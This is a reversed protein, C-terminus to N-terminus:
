QKGSTRQRSERKRAYMRVDAEAMLADLGPLAPPPGDKPPRPDWLSFGVSAALQFKRGGQDNLARANALVRREIFPVEDPGAQAVLAAFEDGGLRALVDGERLSKKLVAAMDRIAADGTEHGQEDNIKKLGDLDAYLVAMPTQERRAQALRQEALVLFGRRNLLGTLEDVQSLARMREAQAELLEAAKKQESVDRLVSVGAVVRGTKDMIPRATVSIWLGAPRHPARVFLLAEDAPQGRTALTIPGEGPALATKQDPLFLQLRSPWDDPLAEALGEGFLRRTAPNLVLLRRNTDLVLCGDGMGDLVSGIMVSKQRLDEATKEKEQRDRRAQWSSALTALGALVLGTLSLLLVRLGSSAATEERQQQLRHEAGALEEMAVRVRKLQSLTPGSVVDALYKDADNAQKQAVAAALLSLEGEILAQVARAREAQEPDGALRAQLGQLASRTSRVAEEYHGRVEESGSLLFGRYSSEADKLNSLTESALLRARMSEGVWRADARARLTAVVWLALIGALLLSALGYGALARRSGSLM